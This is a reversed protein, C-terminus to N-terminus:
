FVAIALEWRQQEILEVFVRRRAELCRHIRGLFARPDTAADGVDVDLEYHMAALRPWLARPHVSREPVPAVFGSILVGDIARAPYTSPVNLCLTRMGADGALEWLPPASLDDLNPFFASYSRPELDVFGFIGHRGPHVGTLFTAWSTSSVEPVPA